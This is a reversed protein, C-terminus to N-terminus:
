GAKAELCSVCLRAATDTGPAPALPADRRCESLGLGSGKVDSRVRESDLKPWTSLTGSSRTSM